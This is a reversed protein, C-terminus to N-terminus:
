HRSSDPSGTVDTWASPATSLEESLGEPDLAALRRAQQAAVGFLKVLRAMSDPTPVLAQQRLYLRGRLTM